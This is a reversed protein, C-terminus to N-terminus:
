DMRNPWGDPFKQIAIDRFRKTNFFQDEKLLEECIMDVIDKKDELSSRCNRISKAVLDAERQKM